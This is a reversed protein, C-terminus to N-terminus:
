GYRRNLYINSFEDVVMNWKPPIITTTDYQEIIAPGKIRNSPFLADRFYIPTDIWDTDGFYVRRKHSLAEPSPAATMMSRKNIRPKKTLGKAVLHANVVEVPEDEVAYGYTEHHRLHFSALTYNLNKQMPVSIEYSQELYRLDLYKEMLIQETTFGENGLIAMAEKGMETFVEDLAVADIESAKRIIARKFDHRLDTLILGMASFVGPNPPILVTGIGLGEALFPAQMPGAGGFALMTFHRPDHGKEISVLRLARIMHNNVIELMGHAAQVISIDLPDAVKERIAKKALEPFVKLEGGSLGQPNLRKLVLHADTVTPHEGGKGYCAPGPYAGASLPGVRLAGEDDIWAITGGGASVEALDIFPYRVPYGSGKVVRGSHVTGGVEYEHVMHPRGQIVAGAKATTGGMDFSLINELGLMKGWYASAIVGTAPGSEITSVPIRCAEEVTALGGNSQIIYVPANVDFEKLKKCINKLYKSVVPILLSNVVTTSTREYERYQPDVEHSAVLVVSPLENRLIEKIRREHEPNVYSHLLVIAVTEIDEESIRRGLNKVEKEDIPELIQGQFDIREHVTYRFHRDILPKPRDFFPDYLEARRQRGIELVDKFGFTTILSGKPIKLGLQGLFLNTGITSAHVIFAIDQETRATVIKLAGIVGESPDHPTSPFKALITEGNEENHGVIDTFTGGVDIGIRFESTM